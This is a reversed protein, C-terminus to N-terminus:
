KSLFSVATTVLTHHFEHYVLNFYFSIVLITDISPTPTCALLDRWTL